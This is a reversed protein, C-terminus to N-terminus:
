FAIGKQIESLTQASQRLKEVEQETLTVNVM